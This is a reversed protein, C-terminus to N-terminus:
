WGLFFHAIMALLVITIIAGIIDSRRNERRIKQKMKNPIKPLKNMSTNRKDFSKKLRGSNRLHRRNDKLSDIM